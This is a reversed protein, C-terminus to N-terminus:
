GGNPQQPLLSGLDVTGAGSPVTIFFTEVPSGLIRFDVRWESDQPITGADANSTLAQSLNGSADLNATVSAPVVTTPGNTIRKSLSFVLAGSAPTQDANVFTHTVTTITFSM